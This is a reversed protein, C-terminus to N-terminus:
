KLLKVWLDKYVVNRIGEGHAKKGTRIERNLPFIHDSPIKMTEYTEALVTARPEKTHYVGYWNNPPTISKSAYWDAIKDVGSFDWGGSFTIIRNVNIQKAIFAAMGGGQSQGAITISQWNITNGDLFMSWDGSEDNADLYFLLKKFRNIIADQELDPILSTMQTGFIRQTRFKSTCAKDNELNENRCIQAVAPRNIYSLNIVKYGQEIATEFLRKPGRVPVGGTGPLFLLLKSQQSTSDYMILHAIDANTISSDTLSPRILLERIADKSVQNEQSKQPTKVSNCKTFMMVSVLLLYSSKIRPISLSM